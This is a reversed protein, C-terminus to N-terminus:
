RGGGSIIIKLAAQRAEIEPGLLSATSTYSAGLGEIVKTFADKVAEDWASNAADIYQAPVSGAAVGISASTPPLPGTPTKDSSVSTAAQVKKSASGGRAAAAEAAFHALVSAYHSSVYPTVLGSVDSTPTSSGSASGAWGGVATFLVSADSVQGDLSDFLSKSAKHLGGLAKSCASAVSTLSAHTSEVAALLEADAPSASSAKASGKAAKAGGSSGKAGDKLKNGLMTLMRQTFALGVVAYVAAYQSLLTAESLFQPNVPQASPSSSSAGKGASAPSSSAGDTASALSLPLWMHAIIDAVSAELATQLSALLAKASTLHAVAPSPATASVAASAPEGGAPTGAAASASSAAAASAQAVAYGAEIVSTVISGCTATLAPRTGSIGTDVIPLAPSALDWLLGSTIHSGLAGSGSGGSSGSSPSPLLARVVDVHPAARSADGDALALLASQLAVRLRLLRNRAASRLARETYGAYSLTPGFLTSVDCSSKLFELASGLSELGGVAAAAAGFPRAANIGARAQAIVGASPTDWCASNNGACM